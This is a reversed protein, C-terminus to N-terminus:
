KKLCGKPVLRSITESGYKRVLQEYFNPEIHVSFAIKGKLEELKDCGLKNNSFNHIMAYIIRKKERGISVGGHNSITVGTVHRNHAKSTFVTKDANVRLASGYIIRLQKRVLKPVEFLIDKKNTSFTMDDAYRTYSISNNKCFDTIVEDFYFMVFNSIMPSSPAGISLRLPSDRRLKWFIVNCLFDVDSDDLSIKHRILSKKFILPNISPFFDKLDMKLLYRNSAHQVANDKIGISKKYAYAAAHVPLLDNLNEVVIRQILKLEKSPHAITRHGNGSRKPINYVKYRHPATAAFNMLDRDSIFLFDRIIDFIKM